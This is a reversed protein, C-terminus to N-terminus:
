VGARSDVLDRLQGTRRIPHCNRGYQTLILHIQRETEYTPFMACHALPTEWRQGGHSESHLSSSVSAGGVHAKRGPAGASCVVPPCRGQEPGKQSSGEPDERTQEKQPTEFAGRSRGPAVQERPRTPNTHRYTVKSPKSLM